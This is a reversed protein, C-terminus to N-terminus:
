PGSHVPAPATATAAGPASSASTATATAARVAGVPGLELVAFLMISAVIVFRIAEGRDYRSLWVARARDLAALGLGLPVFPAVFPVLGGAAPPVELDATENASFTVIIMVIGLLVASATALLMGHSRASGLSRAALAAAGVLTLVALAGSALPSDGRMAHGLPATLFPVFGAAVFAVVAPVVIAAGFSLKASAPWRAPTAVPLATGPTRSRLPAIPPTLSVEHLSAQSSRLKDASTPEASPKKSPPPRDSRSQRAAASRPDLVPPISSLAAPRRSPPRSAPSSLDLDLAPDDSDDFDLDRPAGHEKPQSTPPPPPRVPLDDVMAPGRRSSPPPSSVSDPLSPASGRAASALDAERIVDAATRVPKAVEIPRSASHPPDAEWSVADEPSSLTLLSSGRRKTPTKGGKLVLSPVRQSRPAGDNEARPDVKPSAAKKVPVDIVGPLDLEPETEVRKRAGGRMDARVKELEVRMVSADAFRKNRDRDLCRTVLEELMLSAHPAHKRVPRIQRTRVLKMVANADEAEFPTEGVLLEYLIVGMAWVDARADVDTATTIQEPAMYHPTGILMRREKASLAGVTQYLCAGFDLVKPVIRTGDRALYINAPKLDRHVVNQKHAAAVADAVPIMIELAEDAPLRGDSAGLYQELDEGSLLEQVIFPTGDDDRSVDFVDVVNAHRIAAAARAERLFRMVDDENSTHEKNLLKIAVKRGLSVNTARYVEGMGGIGLCEELLYKGGLFDGQRAGQKEAAHGAM